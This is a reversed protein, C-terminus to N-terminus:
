NFVPSRLELRRALVEYTSFLIGSFFLDGAMQNKLFPVGMLFCETLGSFTAPYLGASYWVGFNTIVFFVFSSSLAMGFIRALQMKQFYNRNPIFHGMLSVTFFAFYVYVMSSHFGLAWDSMFLILIPLMLALGKSRLLSGLLLAVGGIATFNAPHPWWRSFVAILVLGVALIWQSNKM